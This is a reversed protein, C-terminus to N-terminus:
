GSIRRRMRRLLFLFFRGTCRVTESLFPLPDSLWLENRRDPGRALLDRFAGFRNGCAAIYMLGDPLIWSHKLGVRYDFVPEVKEGAAVRCALWPFDVGAEIALGLTGWYRGNVEMLRPTGDRADIKFEVQAPGHWRLSRLLAVARDRLGPEDTTENEVGIGGTVPYTKRRKQTLCAVPAGNDFLLCVDHVAGPIYEQIMPLSYRFFLDDNGQPREYLRLLENRSNAYRLGVAGSGQRLKVVCPYELGRAIRAVEDRDRPCHTAPVELGARGAAALTAPKDLTVSLAEYDPVALRIHAALEDRNRSAFHTSYDSTPLLIDCRRSRVFRLLFHVFDEYSRSPGPYTIRRACYRSAFSQALRSRDAAWVELGRRGLARVAALANRNGADTVLVRM